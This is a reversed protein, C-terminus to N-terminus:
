TSLRVNVTAGVRRSTAKLEPGAVTVGRGAALHRQNM